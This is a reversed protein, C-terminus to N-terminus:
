DKASRIGQANLEAAIDSDMLTVALTKVKEVTDSPYRLRDAIPAPLEVEIDTNVGGQWRVHLIAKRKAHIKEVTIDKILLRLIRKRDKALTTKANWLRPLDKALALVMKRQVDGVICAETAQFQAYQEEIYQLAQM